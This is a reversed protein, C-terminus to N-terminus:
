RGPRLSKEIESETFGYNAAVRRLHEASVVLERQHARHVTLLEQVKGGFSRDSAADESIPDLGCLGIRVSQSLETLCDDLARAHDRFVKHVSVVNDPNVQLTLDDLAKALAPDPATVRRPYLPARRGPPSEACGNTPSDM